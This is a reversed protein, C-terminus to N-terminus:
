TGKTFDDRYIIGWCERYSHKLRNGFNTSFASILVKSNTNHHIFFRYFQYLDMLSNIHIEKKLDGLIDQHFGFRRSFRHPSYSEVIYQDKCRLSLYRSRIYTFYGLKLIFLRGNDIFDQDFDEISHWPFDNAFQILAHASSEDFLNVSGVGFYRTM